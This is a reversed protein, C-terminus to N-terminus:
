ISCRHAREASIEAILRLKKAQAFKSAEEAKRIEADAKVLENQTPRKYIRVKLSIEASKSRGDKEKM